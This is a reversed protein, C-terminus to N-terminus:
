DKFWFFFLCKANCIVEVVTGQIRLLNFQFEGALQVASVDKVCAYVCVCDVKGHSQSCEGGKWAWTVNRTIQHSAKLSMKLM